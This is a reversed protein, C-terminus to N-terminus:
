TSTPLRQLIDLGKVTDNYPVVSDANGNYLVINIKRSLLYKYSEISGAPDAHYVINEACPGNWVKDPRRSHYEDQHANFYHYIGDDYACPAGQSKLKDSFDYKRKPSHKKILKLLASEQNERAKRFHQEGTVSDIYYCYDFISYPNLADTDKDYKELFAQCQDSEYNKKCYDNYLPVIDPDVLEKNIIYEIESEELTDFTMLGNGVMIAGLNIKSSPQKLNYKDILM